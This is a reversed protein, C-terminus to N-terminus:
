KNVQNFLFKIEGSEAMERASQAAKDKDDKFDPNAGYELLLKVASASNYATAHILATWGFYDPLNVEAGNDLLLKMLAPMKEKDDQQITLMLVSEGEEEEQFNVNAGKEILFKVLEANGTYAAWCLATGGEDGITEIDIEEELGQKVQIMNGQFAFDIFELTTM